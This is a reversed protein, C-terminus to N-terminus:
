DHSHVNSMEKKCAECFGEVRLTSAKLLETYMIDVPEIHHRLGRNHGLGHAVVKKSSECEVQFFSVVGISRAVYDTILYNARKFRKGDFYWYTAIIPDTTVGLLLNLWKSMKRFKRVREVLRKFLFAECVTKGALIRVDCRTNIEGLYKISDWTEIPFYSTAVEVTKAFNHVQENTEPNIALLGIPEMIVIQSPYFIPIGEIVTM